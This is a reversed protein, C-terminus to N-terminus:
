ASVSAALVGRGIRELRAHLRMPPVFRPADVQVSLAARRQRQGAVLRQQIDAAPRPTEQQIQPLAPM